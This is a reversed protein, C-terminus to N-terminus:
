LGAMDDPISGDPEVEGRELQSNINQLANRQELEDVMGEQFHLRKELEAIIYQQERITEELKALRKEISANSQEIMDAALAFIDKLKIDERQTDM